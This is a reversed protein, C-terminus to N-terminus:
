DDNVVKYFGPRPSYIIGNKVAENIEWDEFMAELEHRRCLGKIGSAESDKIYETIM